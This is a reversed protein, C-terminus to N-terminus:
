NYIILAIFVVPEDNNNRISHGEGDPCFATDGASLTVIRGNDSYEAIGSLM